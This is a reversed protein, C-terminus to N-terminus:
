RYCGATPAPVPPPVSATIYASIGLKFPSRFFVVGIVTPFGAGSVTSTRRRHSFLSSFCARLSFATSTSKKAAAKRLTFRSRCALADIAIWRRSPFGRAPWRALCVSPPVFTNAPRLSCPRISDFDAPAADPLPLYPLVPLWEPSRAEGDGASHAGASRPRTAPPAPYLDIV